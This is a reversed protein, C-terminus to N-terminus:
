ACRRNKVDTRWGGGDSARCPNLVHSPRHSIQAKWLARAAERCERARSLATELHDIVAGLNEVPPSSSAFCGILAEDAFRVHMIIADIHSKTLEM